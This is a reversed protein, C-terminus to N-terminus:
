GCRVYRIPAFVDHSMAPVSTLRSHAAREGALRGFVVCELLSCGALRNVGHVGGTVEGTSVLSCDLCPLLLSM